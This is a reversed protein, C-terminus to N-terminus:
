KTRRGPNFAWLRSALFTFAAVGVLIIALLLEYPLRTQKLLIAYSTENIAFGIASLLFFRWVADKIHGRQYRFTLQYHGMFSVGFAVVWGVVNAVLPTLYAGSVLLVVVVWHVFAASTGVAVFWSLQHSLKKM